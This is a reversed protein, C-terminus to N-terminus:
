VEKLEEGEKGKEEKKIRAELIKGLFIGMIGWIISDLSVSISFNFFHLTLPLSIFGQILFVGILAIRSMHKKNILVAVLYSVHLPQYYKINNTFGKIVNYAGLITWFAGRGLNIFNVEFQFIDKIFRGSRWGFCGFQGYWGPNYDWWKFYNNFGSFVLGGIFNIYNEYTLVFKLGLPSTKKGTNISSDQNLDKIKFDDGEEQNMAKVENGIFMNAAIMVGALLYGKKFLTNKLVMNLKAMNLTTM